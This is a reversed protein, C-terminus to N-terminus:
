SAPDTPTTSRRHRASRRMPRVVRAAADGDDNTALEMLIEDNNAALLEQARRLRTAKRRAAARARKEEAAREAATAEEAQRAQEARVEAIYLNVHGKFVGACQQLKFVTAIVAAYCWAGTMTSWPWLGCSIGAVACYVVGCQTAKAADTSGSWWVWIQSALCAACFLWTTHFWQQLRLHPFTVLALVFVCAVGGACGSYVVGRALPSLHEVHAGLGRAASTPLRLVFAMAGLVRIFGDHLSVIIRRFCVSFFTYITSGIWGLRKGWAFFLRASAAGLQTARAVVRAHLDPWCSAAVADGVVCLAPAGVLLLLAATPSVLM